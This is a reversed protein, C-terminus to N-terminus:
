TGTSEPPPLAHSGTSTVKEPMGDPYAESPRQEPLRFAGSPREQSGTDYPNQGSYWAPESDDAYRRHGEVTLFGIHVAGSTGGPPGMVSGVVVCREDVIARRGCAARGLDGHGPM